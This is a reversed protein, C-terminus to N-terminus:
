KQISLIVRVMELALLYFSKSPIGCSHPNAQTGSGIISTAALLPAQNSELVATASSLLCLIVTLTAAQFQSV